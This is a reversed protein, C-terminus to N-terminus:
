GYFFMSKIAQVNESFSSLSADGVHQGRAGLLGWPGCSRWEELLQDLQPLFFEVKNM